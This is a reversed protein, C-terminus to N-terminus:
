ERTVSLKGYFGEKEADRKMSSELEDISQQKKTQDEDYWDQRQRMVFAKTGQGVSIQIPSGEQTAKAVRKDGVTVGSDTVIEYGMEQFTQIRDDIDNVVRYVYGPEKGRVTLRNRTGNISSRRVRENSKIKKNPATAATEDTTTITTTTTTNEVMTEMAEDGISTKSKAM